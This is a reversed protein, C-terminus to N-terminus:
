LRDLALSFARALMGDGGLAGSCRDWYARDLFTNFLELQEEPMLTPTQMSEQVQPPSSVHPSHEPLTCQALLSVLFLGALHLLLVSRKPEPECM